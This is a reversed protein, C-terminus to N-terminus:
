SKSKRKVARVSNDHTILFNYNEPLKLRSKITDWVKTFAIQRKQDTPLNNAKQLRAVEDDTLKGLNSM